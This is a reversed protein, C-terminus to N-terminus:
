AIALWNSPPNASRSFACFYLVLRSPAGAVQDHFPKLRVNAVTHLNQELHDDIRRRRFPGCRGRHTETM